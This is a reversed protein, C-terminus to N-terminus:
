SKKRRAAMGGAMILGLSMLALSGPEPVHTFRMEVFVKSMQGEPTQVMIQTPDSTIVDVPPLVTDPSVRFSLRWQWGMSDTFFEDAFDTIPVTYEDPTNTGATEHLSLTTTSAVDNLLTTGHGVDEFITLNAVTDIVWYPNGASNIENPSAKLETIRWWEGEDWLGDGNGAMGSSSSAGGTAAGQGADSFTTMDMRSQLLGPNNGADNNPVGWEITSNTMPAYAPNPLAGSFTVPSVPVGIVPSQFGARQDFYFNVAAAHTSVAGLAVALATATLKAKTTNRM